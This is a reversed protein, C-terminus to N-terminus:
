KAAYVAPIFKGQRAEECLEEGGGYYAPIYRIKAKELTSRLIYEGDPIGPEFEIVASKSDFRTQTTKRAILKGKHNTLTLVVDVFGNEPIVPTRVNFSLNAKKLIRVPTLQWFLAALPLACPYRKQMDAFFCYNNQHLLVSQENANGNVTRGINMKLEAPVQELGFDSFPIKYYLTYGPQRKRRCVGM